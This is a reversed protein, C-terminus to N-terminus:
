DPNFHKHWGQSSGMIYGGMHWAWNGLESLRQSDLYSGAYTHICLMCLVIKSASASPNPNSIRYSKIVITLAVPSPFLRPHWFREALNNPYFDLLFISACLV